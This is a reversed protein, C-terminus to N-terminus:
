AFAAGIRKSLLSGAEGCWTSTDPTAGRGRRLRTIALRPPNPLTHTSWKASSGSIRLLLPRQGTVTLPMAEDDPAKWTGSTRAKGSSIPGPSESSRGIRKAGVAKPAAVPVIVTVLLSGSLGCVTCTFPVAGAPRSTTVPESHKPPTFAQQRASRVIEMQLMPSHASCMLLTANLRFFGCQFSILLGNGAVNGGPAQRPRTM